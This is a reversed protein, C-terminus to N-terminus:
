DHQPKTEWATCDPSREALVTISDEKGERNEQSNLNRREERIEM